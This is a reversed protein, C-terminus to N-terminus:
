QLAALSKELKEKNVLLGAIKEKEKAVVAAPAKSVFAESELRKQTSEILAITKAIDKTL